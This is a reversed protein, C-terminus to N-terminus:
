YKIEDPVANRLVAFNTMKNVFLLIIFFVKVFRLFSGLNRPSEFFEGYRQMAKSFCLSM